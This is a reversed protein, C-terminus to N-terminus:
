GSRVGGDMHVEIKPGVADVIAAVQADLHAMTSQAALTDPGYRHKISDLTLLHFMMLNPRHVRIIHAAAQTWVHDRFVINKSAFTDVDEQSVIGAQVMELAAMLDKGIVALDGVAMPHNAAIVHRAIENPM